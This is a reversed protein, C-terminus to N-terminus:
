LFHECGNAPAATTRPVTDFNLSEFGSGDTLFREDLANLIGKAPKFPFIVIGFIKNEFALMQDTTM